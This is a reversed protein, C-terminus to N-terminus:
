GLIRRYESKDNRAPCRGIPRPEQGMKWELHCHFCVNRQIPLGDDGQTLSGVKYFVHPWSDKQQYILPIAM